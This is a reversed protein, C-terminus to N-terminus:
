RDRLHLRTMLQVSLEFVAKAMLLCLAIKVVLLGTSGYVGNLNTVDFMFALLFEAMARFGIYRFLAPVLFGFVVAWAAATSTRRGLLSGCQVLFLMLVVEACYSVYALVGLLVGSASSAYAALGVFVNFALGLALVICWAKAHSLRTRLYARPTILSMRLHDITKREYERALGLGALPVLLLGCAGLNIQLWLVGGMGLVGPNAMSGLFAYVLYLFMACGLPTGAAPDDPLPSLRRAVTPDGPDHQQWPPREDLSPQVNRVSAPEHTIRWHLLAVIVSIIFGHWACLQVLVSNQAVAATFIPAVLWSLVLARGLLGIVARTANRASASSLTGLLCLEVSAVSVGAVAYTFELWGIGVFFFVIGMIPLLAVLVFGFLTVPGAAKAVGIWAPAIGTMRLMDWTERQRESTISTAALLPCVIWGVTGLMVRFAFHLDYAPNTRHDGIFLTVWLVLGLVSAALIAAARKTRLLGVIERRVLAAMPIIISLVRAM